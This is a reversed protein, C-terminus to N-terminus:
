IAGQVYTSLWARSKTAGHPGGPEGTWPIRWALINPHTAMKEELPDERGLSPVRMWWCSGFGCGSPRPVLLHPLQLLYSEPSLPPTWLKHNISMLMPAGPSTGRIPFGGGWRTVFGKVHFVVELFGVLICVFGQCPQLRIQRLRPAKPSSRLGGPTGVPSCSSAFGLAWWVWAWRIWKARPRGPGPATPSDVRGPFVASTALVGSDMTSSWSHPLPSPSPSGSRQGLSPLPWRYGVWPGLSVVQAEGKLGPGQPEGLGPRQPQAADPPGGAWGQQRHLPGVQWLLAWPDPQRRGCLSPAPM